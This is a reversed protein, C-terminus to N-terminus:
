DGEGAEIELISNSEMESLIQRQEEIREDLMYRFQRAGEPFLRFTASGERGNISVIIMGDETTRCSLTSMWTQKIDHYQFDRGKVNSGSM